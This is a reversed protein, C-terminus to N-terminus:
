CDPQIPEPHSLLLVVDGFQHRIRILPDALGPPRQELNIFDM